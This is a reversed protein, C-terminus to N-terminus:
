LVTIGIPELQNIGKFVRIPGTKKVTSKLLNIKDVNRAKIHYKKASTCNEFGIAYILSSLHHHANVITM